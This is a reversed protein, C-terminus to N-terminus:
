VKSAKYRGYLAYMLGVLQLMLDFFLAVDAETLWSAFGLSGLLSVLIGAYTNYGSPLVRLDKM